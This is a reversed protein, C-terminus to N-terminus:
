AASHFELQLTLPGDNVLAVQMDAGFVGAAVAGPVARELSAVFRDFLASAPQPAMAATFDPRRGKDCRGYLTFQPVALVEGGVERLSHHLRGSRDPFIRLDAIRSAARDTDVGADQHGFGVLLVVGPGCSAVVTGDVTVSGSLARQLLVRM